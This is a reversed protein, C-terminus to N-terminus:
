GDTDIIIPVDLSSSPSNGSLRDVLFRQWVFLDSRDESESSPSLFSLDGLLRIFLACLSVHSSPIRLLSNFAVGELECVGRLESRSRFFDDNVNEKGLLFSTSFDIDGFPFLSLLWSFIFTNFGLFSTFLKRLSYTQDFRITNNTIECSSTVYSWNQKRPPPTPPHHPIHQKYIM